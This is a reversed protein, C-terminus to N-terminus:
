SIRVRKLKNRLTSIPIGCLEAAQKMEGVLKIMDDAAFKKVREKSKILREKM